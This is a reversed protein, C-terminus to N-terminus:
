MRVNGTQRMSGNKESRESSSKSTTAVIMAETCLLSAKVGRLFPLQKSLALFDFFALNALGDKACMLMM